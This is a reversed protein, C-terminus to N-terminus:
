ASICAQQDHVYVVYLNGSDSLSVSGKDACMVRTLASVTQIPGSYRALAPFGGHPCPDCVGMGGEGGGVCLPKM